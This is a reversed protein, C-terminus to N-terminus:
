KSESLKGSPADKEDGELDRKRGSWKWLCRVFMVTIPKVYVPCMPCKLKANGKNFDNFIDFEGFGYKLIVRKGYASCKNKESKKGTEDMDDNRCIGVFNMGKTCRRWPKEKKPTKSLKFTKLGATNQFDAFKFNELCGEDSSKLHSFM